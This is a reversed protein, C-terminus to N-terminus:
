ENPFTAMDLEGADEPCRDGILLLDGYETDAKWRFTAPLEGVITHDVQVTLEDGNVSPDGDLQHFQMDGTAWSYLGTSWQDGRLGAEIIFLGDGDDNFASTAWYLNDLEGSDDVGDHRDPIGDAAKWTVAVHEETVAVRGQALDMGAYVNDPVEGDETTVDGVADDCTAEGAAPDNAEDDAAPEDATEADDEAAVDDDTLREGQQDERDGCGTAVLLTIILLLAANRGSFPLPHLTPVAVAKRWFGYPHPKSALLRM